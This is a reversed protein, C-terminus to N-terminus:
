EMRMDRLANLAQQYTLGALQALPPGYEQLDVSFQPSGYRMFIHQIDALCEPLPKGNIEAPLIENASQTMRVIGRVIEPGGNRHWMTAVRRNKNVLTQAERFHREILERYRKGAPTEGVEKQVESLRQLMSSSFDPASAPANQREVLASQAAAAPVTKDVGPTTATEISLNLAPFASLIQQIPTALGATQSVGFLIGVIEQNNNLVASGSDGHDAFQGANPQITFAGTYHRGYLHWTPPQNPDDNVTDGDVDLALLTGQTRQTSQGRKQLPYGSTQTTIDHIGRVVGIDQIEARYTKVYEPDLQILAVDLDRRGAIITGIRDDCCKSSKSCFTNTPQGVRLDNSIDCEVAQVGTISVIAPDSPTPPPVELVTVGTLNRGNIASMIATAVTDANAGSAIPVFVGDTPRAGGINLDVYAAGADSARGTLSIDTGNVSAHLDSWTNTAHPGFIQCDLTGSGSAVVTVRTGAATASLGSTGLATIRAAVTTAISAPTDSSLTKHYVRLDGGGVGIFVVVLTGPTNTGGFNIGLGAMSVTLETTEARNPTAVVHWNTIAVIKPSAGGTKAFCGLTGIGGLGKAPFVTDPQPRHHVTVQGTAGGMFLRSGAMLPDRYTHEDDAIERFVDAEYVDTKIGEIEAPIVEEPRLESVPKKRVVFVMIATDSTRQGAVIKSGIGV